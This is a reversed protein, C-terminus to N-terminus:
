FIDCRRYLVDDGSLPPQVIASGLTRVMMV